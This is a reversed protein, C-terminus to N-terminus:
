DLYKVNFLIMVKFYPNSIM